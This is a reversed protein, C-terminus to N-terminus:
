HGKKFPGQGSVTPVSAHRAALAHFRRAKHSDSCLM